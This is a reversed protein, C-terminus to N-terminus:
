DALEIEELDRVYLRREGDRDSVGAFVRYARGELMKGHLKEFDEGFAVAEVAGTRGSLLLVAMPEHKKTTKVTVKAAVAAFRVSGKFSRNLDLLASIPLCGRVDAAQAHDLPHGSFYMGASDREGRLRELPRLNEAAPTPDAMLGDFLSIQRVETRRGSAKSAIKAMLAGRHIGFSDLAGSKALIEYARRNLVGQTRLMLDDLSRFPGRASREGAVKDMDAEGLGRLACLAWRVAPGKATAELSFRVQSRNIDPPLLRTRSRRAEEAWASLKEVDGLDANMSAAHFAEPAHRRLSATDAAIKAYAAAHSKNFGYDAFRVLLDFVASATAAEVQNAAAGEVFAKRHAEMEAMIKKGMARRLLDAQALTYGAMRRAIEMVQEQYIVVGNTEALVSDLVPHLTEAKRLGHKVDAYAPINEMPGPRYLSVLAILDEIRSPRIRRLASRMGASELQFVGFSDGEALMAFAEADETSGSLDIERGVGKSLAKAGQIVDLTKLGLFDFKVLGADEVSKMDFQTVLGGQPDRMVPVAEAVPRDSIVVGAAHTSAHRLLGELRLAIEFLKRVTTDARALEDKLPEMGMAEALGVPQAPNSPIMRCLRDVVPFPVQLVRGVDRVVARAQLKGYTGIQAVRDEGYKAKVHAIVEDRRGQEFDVDFDPMSVRDPNLFREFLLGYRLPDLDTIGLAWAALSGAGSGRGPGVAIGQGKAWGIFEAVILFYGSFGMRVITSLEAELREQYPGRDAGATKAADLRAGLGAQAKARLEGEETSGEACPFAPLVPKRKAAMFSCRKAAALTNAVADPLDAFLADIDQPTRLFCGAAARRRDAAVLHTAGSVCLLADHAEHMSAEEFKAEVAALLPIGRAKAAAILFPEARAEDADGTRGVAAYLRDGFIGSLADLAAEMAAPSRVFARVILGDTGGTHALLGESCAALVDLGVTGGGAADLASSAACLRLLNAHGAEDKALLVVHGEVAAGGFSWAIPQGLGVIPQVGAEAAEKCFALSGALSGSDALAAAPLGMRAARAILDPIRITSQGLSHTSRVHMPVYTM